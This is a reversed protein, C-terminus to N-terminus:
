FISRNTKTSFDVMKNQYKKDEDLAPNYLGNADPVDNYLIGDAVLKGDVVYFSNLKLFGESTGGSPTEFNYQLPKVSGDKYTVAASPTGFPVDIGVDGIQSARDTVPAFGFNYDGLSGGGEGFNMTLGGGSSDRVTKSVVKAENLAKDRLADAYADANPFEKGPGIFQEVYRRNVPDALVQVYAAKTRVPDVNENTTTVGSENEYVKSFLAPDAKVALDMAGIDERLFGESSVFDYVEDVGKLGDFKAMQADFHEQDWKSPDSHFKKVQDDFFAKAEMSKKAKSDFADKAEYYGRVEKTTPDDLDYGKVSLNVGYDRLGNYGGEMEEKTKNWYDKSVENLSKSLDTMRKQKAAQKDLQQKQHQTVMNEMLRVPSYKDQYVIADGTNSQGLPVTGLGTNM